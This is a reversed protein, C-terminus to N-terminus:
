LTASAAPEGAQDRELRRVVFLAIGGLLGLGIGGLLRPDEIESCAREGIPYETESGGPTITTGCNLRVSVAMAAESNVLDGPLVLMQDSTGRGWAYTSYLDMPGDASGLYYLAMRPVLLLWVAFGFAIAM